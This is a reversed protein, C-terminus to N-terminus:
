PRRTNGLSHRNASDEKGMDGKQESSTLKKIKEGACRYFDSQRSAM